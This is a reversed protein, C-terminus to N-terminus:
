SIILFIIKSALRTCLLHWDVQTECYAKQYNAFGYQAHETRRAPVYKRVVLCSDAFMAPIALVSAERSAGSLKEALEHCRCM